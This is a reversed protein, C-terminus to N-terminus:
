FSLFCIFLCCVLWISLSSSRVMEIDVWITLISGGVVLGLGPGFLASAFFLGLYIPASKPSVNEDLYAPGLAFLPTTGAGMVMQALSFVFLYYWDGSYGTFCRNKDSSTSNLNCVGSTESSVSVDSLEPQYQGILFHPLAFILGGVGSFIPLSCYHANCVQQLRALM